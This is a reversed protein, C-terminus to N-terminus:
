VHWFSEDEILEGAQASRVCDELRLMRVALGLNGPAYYAWKASDTLVLGKSGRLLSGYYTCTDSIIRVGLGELEALLGSRQIQQRVHRSTSVYLPVGRAVPGGDLSRHLVMFELESYHPTGLCVASLESQRGVALARRQALVHDPGLRHRPLAELVPDDLPLEPTVGPVHFMRVDGSAAAAAGLARLQDQTPALGLGTLAYVASGALSGLVLGLLQYFADDSLWHEPMGQVDLLAQPRRNQDLYLDYEPMRGTLAAALDLYQYAKISRAGIVSNAYVVANSEAWAICEGQQPLRPLHYPACTLELDCGMDRYSAVIQCSKRVEISDPRYLEPQTFDATGANLTTPVAVRAGSDAIRRILALDAPGGYYAGVLHAQGIDILRRAGVARGVRCLLEMAFQPAEGEAGALRKRDSTSLEM